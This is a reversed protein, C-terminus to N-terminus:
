ANRFMIRLAGWHRGGIMIPADAEKIMMREGGGMDREYSQLMWPRTSRGAALGARDDFLRRNRCHKANWAPDGARQPQSVRANHTPAYGDRDVAFVGIVNSDFNLASDLIPQILRDASETFSTTFQAPDSGPVPKYHRDFPAASSLTGAAIAQDLAAGIRAATEKAAAVFREDAARARTLFQDLRAAAAPDAPALAILLRGDSAAVLTGALSGVGPLDLDMTSAEALRGVSSAAEPPARVLAAETSLELIMVDGSWGAAKLKAAALVPVQANWNAGLRTVRRLVLSVNGRLEDAGRDTAQRDAETEDTLQGLYAGRRAVQEITAAVRGTNGSAGQLREAIERLTAEQEDVAAAVAANASDINRVAGAVGQMASVSGATASQMTHIRNTVDAAAAATQRSLEKVEAAVVAFGRGAEGARAAEITANLALLNTRSAIAAISKVVSGIAQAAEGLTAVAQAAEDSASVAQRAIGSSRAAQAAIERGAASLEEGAAAVAAVNQSVQRAAEAVDASERSMAAVEEVVAHARTAALVSQRRCAANASDLEAEILECADILDRPPPPTVPPAPAIGVPEDDEAGGEDSTKKRRAQAGIMTLLSMACSYASITAYANLFQAAM